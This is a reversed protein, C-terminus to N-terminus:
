KKRAKKLPCMTSTIAGIKKSSLGSMKLFLRLRTTTSRDVYSILFPLKHKFMELNKAAWQSFNTKLFPLLSHTSLVIPYYYHLMCNELKGSKQTKSAQPCEMVILFTMELKPGQVWTASNSFPLQEDHSDILFWTSVDISLCFQGFCPVNERPQSCDINLYPFSSCYIQHVKVPISNM